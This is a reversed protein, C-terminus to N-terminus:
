KAAGLGAVKLTQALSIEQLWWQKMGHAKKFGNGADTVHLSACPILHFPMADHGAWSQVLMRLGHARRGAKSTESSGLQRLQFRELEKFFTVYAACLPDHTNVYLHPQWKLLHRSGDAPRDEGKGSGVSWFKTALATAITRLSLFIDLSPFPPNFLHTDVFCNDAALTRGVLLCIAAGLSHGTMCVKGAGYCAVVQKVEELAMLFMPTRHLQLMLVDLDARLDSWLTDGFPLTGRFAVVIKPTIGARLASLRRSWKFVAGVIQDSGEDEHLTKILKYKFPLYWDPALPELGMKVVHRDKDLRLSGAGLMGHRCALQQSSDM